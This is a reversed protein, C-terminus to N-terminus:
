ARESNSAPAEYGFVSKIELFENMGHAGWERGNGSQKYGGFPAKDDLHAGNIHVMGTRLRAAISRAHDLNSSSVYGAAKIRQTRNVKTGVRFRHKNLMGGLVGSRRRTAAGIPSDLHEM